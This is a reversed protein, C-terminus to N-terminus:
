NEFIHFVYAGNNLQVTSIYHGPNETMDHGTGYISIKREEKVDDDNVIAWINLNIGQVQACLIKANKPISISQNQVVDLKYKFIKKM